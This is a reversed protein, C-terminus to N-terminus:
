SVGVEEAEVCVVFGVAELLLGRETAVELATGCVYATRLVTGVDQVLV